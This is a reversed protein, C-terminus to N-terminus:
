DIVFELQLEGDKSFTIKNDPTIKMTGTEDTIEICKNEADLKIKKEMCVEIEATNTTVPATM